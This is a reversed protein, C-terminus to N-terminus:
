GRAKVAEADKAILKVMANCAEEMTKYREYVADDGTRSLVYPTDPFSPDHSLEALQQKSM